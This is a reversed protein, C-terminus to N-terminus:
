ENEPTKIEILKTKPPYHARNEELWKQLDKGNMGAPIVLTINSRPAKKIKKTKM